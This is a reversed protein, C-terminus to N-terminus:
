FRSCSTADIEFAVDVCNWVLSLILASNPGASCHVTIYEVCVLILRVHSVVLQRLAEKPFWASQTMTSEHAARLAREFVRLGPTGFM